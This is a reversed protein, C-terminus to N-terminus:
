RCARGFEPPPVAALQALGCGECWPGLFMERLTTEMSLLHGCEARFVGVHDAAPDVAHWHWDVASLGWNM